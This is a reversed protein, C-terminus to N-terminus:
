TFCIHETIRLQWYNYYYKCLLSQIHRIQFLMQSQEKQQIYEANIPKGNIILDLQIFDEIKGSRTNFLSIRTSLLPHDLFPLLSWSGLITKMKEFSRFYTKLIFKYCYINRLILLFRMFKVSLFDLTLATCM